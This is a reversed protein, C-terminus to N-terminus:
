DFYFLRSSGDGGHLFVCTVQEHTGGCYPDLWSPRTSESVPELRVDWNHTWNSGLPSREDSASRYTRTFTLPRAPGPFSLDTQTVDLSGDGLAVPDGAKKEPAVPQEPKDGARTNNQAGNNGPEPQPPQEPEARPPPNSNKDAGAEAGLANGLPVLTPIPGFERPPPVIIIEAPGPSVPEAAVTPDIGSQPVRYTKVCTGSQCNTCVQTGRENTAECYCDVGCCGGAATPTAGPRCTMAVLFMSMQEAQRRATDADKDAVCLDGKTADSDAVGCFPPLEPIQSDCSTGECYELGCAWCVYGCDPPVNPGAGTEVASVQAYSSTQTCFEPVERGGVPREAPQGTCTDRGPFLVSWDGMFTTPNTHDCDVTQVGCEPIPPPNCSFDCPLPLPPNQSGDIQAVQVQM